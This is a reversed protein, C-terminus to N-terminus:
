VVANGEMISEAAEAIEHLFSVKESVNQNVIYKFNGATKMEKTENPQKMREVDVDFRSLPRCRRTIQTYVDFKDIFWLHKM